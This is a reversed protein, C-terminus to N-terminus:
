SEPDKNQELFRPSWVEEEMASLAIPYKDQQDVFLSTMLTTLAPRRVGVKPSIHEKIFDIARYFLATAL